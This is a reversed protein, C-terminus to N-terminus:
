RTKRLAEFIAEGIVKYGNRNPHMDAASKVYLQGDISRRLAPLVDVSEINSDALFKFLKERAQRENAILSDITQGLPLSANHELYEAFVMEKTPIVAVLFRIDNRRSVDNMDALLQFTIRMGELIFRNEQDLNRLISKPLFAELIGRQPVSLIVSDPRARANRIQLEGQFRGLLPGHFILQYLVSHQSLWLRLPKHWRRDEPVAWIDFDVSEDPLSRLYRWHELGYTILFANEFDDGTYFGLVITKPKLKLAKSVLLHFYQNPGYGGMALNYVSMGSLRGLVYPWSDDMTAANGFTHSDGIAVIDVRAPVAPNRFGWADFQHSVASAPVAAGLVDDHVMAVSLYDAPNLVIRAVVECLVLTVALSGVLVASSELLTKVKM